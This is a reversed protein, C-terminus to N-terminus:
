DQAEIRDLHLGLGTGKKNGKRVMDHEGTQLFPAPNRWFLWERCLNVPLAALCSPFSLRLNGQPECLRRLPTPMGSHLTDVLNFSKTHKALEPTFV